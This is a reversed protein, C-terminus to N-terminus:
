DGGQDYLSIGNIGGLALREKPFQAAVYAARTKGGGGIMAM